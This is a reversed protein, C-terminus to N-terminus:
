KSPIHMVTKEIDKYDQFGFKNYLGQADKTILYWNSLESFTKDSLIFKMLKQSYGLGRKSEVIFLDCIYAFTAQDSIVRAFGVQQTNEFVAYCISNEISKVIQERTREKAWYSQQLFNCILELDLEEKNKSITIELKKM